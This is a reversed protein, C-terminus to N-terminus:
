PQHGPPLGGNSASIPHSRTNASLDCRGEGRGAKWQSELLSRIDGRECSRSGLLPQVRGRHDSNSATVEYLYQIASHEFQALMSIEQELEQANEPLQVDRNRLIKMMVVRGTDIHVARKIRTFEEEKETKEDIFSYGSSQIGPVENKKINGKLENLKQKLHPM